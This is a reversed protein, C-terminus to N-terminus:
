NIKDTTSKFSFKTRCNAINLKMIHANLPTSTYCFQLIRIRVLRLAWYVNNCEHKCQEFGISYLANCHKVNQTSLIIRLTNCYVNTRIYYRGSYMIKPVIYCIVTNIFINQGSQAQQIRPSPIYCSCAVEYTSTKDFYLGRTQCRKRIGLANFFFINRRVLIVDHSLSLSTYGHLRM